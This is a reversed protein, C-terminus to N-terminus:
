VFCFCAFRRGQTCGPHHGCLPAFIWSRLLLGPYSALSILSAYAGPYRVFLENTFTTVSPSDTWQYDMGMPEIMYKFYADVYQRSCSLSYHTAAETGCVTGLDPLTTNGPDTVGIAEAFDAYNDQCADIGVDQHTNGAVKVGLPGRSNHLKTVFAAPNPFLTRNWSYGGWNGNGSKYCPQRFMEHWEMDMVLVHLPLGRQEYGAAVKNLINSETM